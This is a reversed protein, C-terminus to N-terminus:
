LEGKETELAQAPMGSAVGQLVDTVLSDGNQIGGNLIASDTQIRAINIERFDLKGDKILYVYKENYLARRPIKFASQVTTGPIEARLFIGNYLLETGNKTLTMFVPVTQTSEDINKGIRKIRGRWEGVMESSTFTIPTNKDIWQIEDVAVPVEVELNDLNIIEGLRTGPRATSGVRLDASTISGSFPAYFYHKNLLIELNRVQFYLKYVNFRSLYLKIKQNAADPLKELSHDFRIKDFYTQWLEYEEPFDVKIEPLVNALATLLDSKASNLDLIAQRDDIKLMLDNKRFSQAPQFTIEGEQLIGSVESYLTVPQATKLRGYAEISSPIEELQVVDINVIKPRAQPAQRPQESSFSLFFQMLGFGTLLILVPWLIIKWKM